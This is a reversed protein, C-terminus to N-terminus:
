PGAPTHLAILARLLENTEALAQNTRVGAAFAGVLAEGVTIEADAQNLTEANGPGLKLKDSTQMDDEETDRPALIRRQVEPIVVETFQRAREDGPCEKGVSTSWREGDTVLFGAVDLGRSHLVGQRHVALGRRSPKTDVVLVPPIAVKVGRWTVGRRCAWGPPCDAHAAPSCEWTILDVLAEVQADTWPEIDASRRPANDATEISIVRDNGDPGNADAQHTRDQWQWVVGDLRAPVDDGWDGGVGYHSETGDFGPGNQTRFYRDAGALSNVMTHACVIDHATMRPESQRGLPRYEAGPYRM